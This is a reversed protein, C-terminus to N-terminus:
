PSVRSLNGTMRGLFDLAGGYSVANTAATTASTISNATSLADNGPITQSAASATSALSSLSSSALGVGTSAIGTATGVASTLSLLAPSGGTLVTAVPLAQQVTSLASSIDPLIGNIGLASSVDSALQDILGPQPPASPQPIVTCSIRYPIRYGGRTWDLEVSQVVVKRVQGLWRLQVASGATRLADLQQARSAATPGRFIGTWELSREDPGLVDIVRQGGLLKHVAMQQTGGSTIKEPVEMTQFTISGLSVGTSLLGTVAEVASAATAINIAM